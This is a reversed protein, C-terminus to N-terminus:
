LAAGVRHGQARAKSHVGGFPELVKPIDEGNIGIGTDSVSIIDPRASFRSRMRRLPHIEGAQCCTPVPAPAQQRRLASSATTVQVSIGGPRPDSPQRLPRAGIIVKLRCRNSALRLEADLKVPRSPKILSLVFAAKHIIKPINWIASM